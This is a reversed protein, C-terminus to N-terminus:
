ETKLEFEAVYRTISTNFPYCTILYLKEEDDDLSDLEEPQKYSFWKFEYIYRNDKDKLSVINWEKLLTINTFIHSYDSEVFSSSHWFLYFAKKNHSFNVVGRNLLNEIDRNTNFVPAVVWISPIELVQPRFLSLDVPSGENINKKSENLQDVPLGIYDYANLYVPLGKNDINNIFNKENELMDERNIDRVEKIKAFVEYNLGIFMWQINAILVLFITTIIKKNM